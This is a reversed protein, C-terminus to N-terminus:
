SLCLETKLLLELEEWINKEQLKWSTLLSSIHQYNQSGEESRFAGIIKRYIVSERITQEALNNTPEMGPNLLCTFWKGMGNELYTVTKKLEPYPKFEIVIESLREELMEKHKIRDNMEVDNKLNEKLDKFVSHVKESMKYGNDSFDKIADVERILHSWCRQVNTIYNYASWGDSIIPRNWEQGLIERVVKSGRSKRIVVLVDNQDSRFIWLWWKDRNVKISTEDIYCWKSNRIRVLVRDYEKHCVNGVRNLSDLLGKPSIIFSHAHQLYEQVKRIPGRLHFKLMVMYLLLLIGFNGEKPCDPHKSYFKHGCEYCEVRYREYETVEIKGPPPLDEIVTNLHQDTIKIHKSGCSECHDAVVKEVRDPIPTSRTAGKHGIPAGRKKSEVSDKKVRIQQLSPPTHPNEYLLLKKKLEEIEKELVENKFILILIQEELQSIYSSTKM